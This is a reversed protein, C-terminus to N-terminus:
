WVLRGDGRYLVARRNEAIGYIWITRGISYLGYRGGFAALLRLEGCAAAPAAITRAPRGPLTLVITGGAKRLVGRELAISDTGPNSPPAGAELPKGLLYAGETFEDTGFERLPPISKVIGDALDARFFEQRESDRWAYTISEGDGSWTLDFFVAKRDPADLLPIRLLSHGELDLAALRHEPGDHELWAARTEDPSLQVDAPVASRIDLRQERAARTDYLFEAGDQTRYGLWRKAPSLRLSNPEVARAAGIREPTNANLRLRFPGESDAGYLIANSRVWRHDLFRDPACSQAAAPAAWVLGLLMWAIAKRM